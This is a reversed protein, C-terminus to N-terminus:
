TATSIYTVTPTTSTVTSGNTTFPLSAGGIYALAEASADAANHKYLVMQAIQCNSAGGLAGWSVSTWTITTNDSGDSETTTVGALTKRSYGTCTAETGASIVESVFNHDRGTAAAVENQILLVRFDTADFDLTATLFLGRNTVYSATPM